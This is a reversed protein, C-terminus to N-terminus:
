RVPDPRFWDYLGLLEPDRPDLRLEETTDYTISTFYLLRAPGLRVKFGHAVGAPIKLVFTQDYHEGMFFENVENFTPSDPRRDLLAVQLDGQAVWWWDVQTHHLHWAVIGALRLPFSAQAVGPDSFFPDQKLRALEMFFGREDVHRELQKTAVGHIM